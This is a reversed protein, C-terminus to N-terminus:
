EDDSGDWIRMENIALGKWMLGLLRVLQGGSVEGNMDRPILLTDAGKLAHGVQHVSEIALKLAEEARRPDSEAIPYICMELLNVKLFYKADSRLSVQKAMADIESTLARDANEPERRKEGYRYERPGPPYTRYLDEYIKDYRPDM